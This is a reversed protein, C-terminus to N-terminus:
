SDDKARSQWEEDAGPRAVWMIAGLLGYWALPPIFYKFIGHQIRETRMPPPSSGLPLFGLEEFSQDKPGLYLWSTGGAEHEGYVHDRYVDPQQAIQQHARALLESRKGYTMVEQPCTRVCAPVGGKNPNGENACLTCKRVQPTLVNDYEYTPIQFPCAVMCYRCGMCKWADYVVPGEDLKKFAGVLCASVCAPDNCHLCNAKVYVAADDYANLEGKEEAVAYDVGAASTRWKRGAEKTEEIAIAGREDLRVGNESFQGRLRESIIKAARDLEAQVDEPISFLLRSSREDYANFAGNDGQIRYSEDAPRVRWRQGGEETEEIIITGQEGIFLGGGSFARRVRKSVTEAARELGPQDAAPIGFLFRLSSCDYVNLKDDEEVIKYCEGAASMRWTEGERTKEITTTAQDGLSVGGESFARRLREAFTNGASILDDQATKPISFLFRPSRDDYVKLEGEDEVIRYSEGIPSIRWRMGAEEIAITGYKGLLVGGESFAGRLRRSVTNGANELDAHVAAPMKFLFRAFRNITTHNHPEPRRHHAFVAPDQLEEDTPIEFGNAENCAAECRRCGICKILDVLVGMCDDSIAPAESAVARGPLSGVGSGALGALGAKRLFDRRDANV